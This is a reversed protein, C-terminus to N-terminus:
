IVYDALQKINKHYLNVDLSRKKNFDNNLKGLKDINDSIDVYQSKSKELKYGSKNINNSNDDDNEKQSNENDNNNGEAYENDENQGDRRGSFNNNQYSKSKTIQM